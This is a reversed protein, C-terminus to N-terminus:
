AEAGDDRADAGERENAGDAAHVDAPENPGDDETTLQLFIEELSVTEMGTLTWGRAVIAATIEGHPQEGAAFEALHDPEPFIVGAVGPVADLAASLADAPGDVRLRLREAGSVM